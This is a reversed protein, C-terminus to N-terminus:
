ESPLVEQNRRIHWHSTRLQALAEDLERNVRELETVALVRLTTDQCIVLVGAVRGDSEFLPTYGYTWYVSELRGNRTIPVLRDEHWTSEGSEMVGRIEPGIIPWADAWHVEGTAGLAVLDRGGSGFYPLYENNFLQTLETGRWLIMTQRAALLLRVIPVADTAM